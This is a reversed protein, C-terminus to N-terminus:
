EKSTASLHPLHGSDRYYDDAHRVEGASRSSRTSHPSGVAVAWARAARSPSTSTTGFSSRSARETGSARAIPSSRAARPM